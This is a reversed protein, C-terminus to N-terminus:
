QALAHRSPAATRCPLACLAVCVKLVELRVERDEDTLEEDATRKCDAMNTAHPRACATQRVRYTTQETRRTRETRHQETRHSSKELITASVGVHRAVHTPLRALAHTPAAHTPAAPQHRVARVLTLLPVAGKVLSHARTLAWQRVFRASAARRASTHTAAQARANCSASQANCSASQVNCSANPRGRQCV